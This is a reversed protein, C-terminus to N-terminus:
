ATPSAHPVVLTSTPSVLSRQGRRTHVHGEQALLALARHATGVAVTHRAALEAVTPLADGPRLDGAAITTRLTAAIREYPSSRSAQDAAPKHMVAAITQAARRDAESVWAAYVKLTTSGGSGHGLRGAVTRIDVGAAILETASYHRLSHLRTSRLKLRLALKRYRQSLARPRYPTTGDPAPSFVFADNSLTCGLSTCREAWMSQHTRLLGITYEDLALRRRQNTKTRKEKVGAKPQSNSREITLQGQDLDVHRWRLASIEGRRPGTLMTLWILLGWEPDRWAANLLAAAEEASPPDPETPQPPPAIAMTAKNVGLHRWRVARDLAGRIIYHVKRTTSTSLPRCVHSARARGTCMDRCRHLRAYYRELLEADLKAAQLDGFVPLVYLRILDDYRERTTEALQVVDLWQEVAQRM